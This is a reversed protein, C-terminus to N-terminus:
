QSNTAILLRDSPYNPSYKNKVKETPHRTIVKKGVNDWCMTFGHPGMCTYLDQEDEGGSKVEADQEGNSDDTVVDDGIVVGSEETKHVKADDTDVDYVDDREEEEDEVDDQEEDDDDSEVDDEEDDDEREDDDMEIDMPRNTSQYVKSEDHAINESYLVTDDSKMESQICSEEEGILPYESLATVLRPRCM